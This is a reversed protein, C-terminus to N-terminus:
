TTTALLLVKMRLPNCGFHINMTTCFILTDRTLRKVGANNILGLFEFTEKDLNNCNYGSVKTLFSYRHLNFQKTVTCYKKCAKM